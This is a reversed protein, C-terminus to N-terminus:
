RGVPQRVTNNDQLNYWAIFLFLVMDVTQLIGNM